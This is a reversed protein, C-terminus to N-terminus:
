KVDPGLDPLATTSTVARRPLDIVSVQKAGGSQYVVVLTDPDRLARGYVDRIGGILETYGRGGADSVALTSLDERDLDGDRDTDQKVVEFLLWRVVARRGEEADPLRETARIYYDNTSILRRCSQDTVDIFVYNNIKDATGSSFKGSSYGDDGSSSIQAMLFPTGSLQVFNGLSRPARPNARSAAPVGPATKRGIGKSLAVVAMCTGMGIVLTVVAIMLTRPQFWRMKRDEGADRDDVMM